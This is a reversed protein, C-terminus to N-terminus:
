TRKATRRTLRRISWWAHRAALDIEPVAANPSRCCCRDRRRAAQDRAHRRRRFEAGRDVQRAAREDRTVASLGVLDAHYFTDDEEVAPLRDRAVYLNVNRLARPRTATTSATLRAVFHDKAPRLARSRSARAHRGRNGASRLGRLRWRTRRHVVAAASRRSHRARRRDPCRLGTSADARRAVMGDARPRHTPPSREGQRKAAAEPKPAAPRARPRPPKKRRRGQAGQAPGGKGSQQAERAQAVGAADLFRMVRDSPQAGKAIWAKVKDMDLKLREENDKPLLPNFYGLREIFRGDRPSRSDAAVIHYFPRKKTGARAMRIVVPM